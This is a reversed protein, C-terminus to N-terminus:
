VIIIISKKRDNPEHARARARAITGTEPPRLLRKRRERASYPRTMHHPRLLGFELFPEIRLHVVNASHRHGQGFRM